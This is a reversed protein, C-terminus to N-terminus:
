ASVHNAVAPGPRRDRRALVSGNRQFTKGLHCGVAAVAPRGGDACSDPGTQRASTPRAFPPVQPALRTVSDPRHAHLHEGSGRWIPTENGNCGTPNARM